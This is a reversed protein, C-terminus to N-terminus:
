PQCFTLAKSPLRCLPERMSELTDLVERLQQCGAPRRTSCTRKSERVLEAAHVHGRRVTAPVLLGEREVDRLVTGVRAVLADIRTVLNEVPPVDIPTERRRALVIEHVRGLRTGLELRTKQLEAATFSESEYRRLQEDIWAVESQLVSKDVVTFQLINSSLLTLLRDRAANLLRMVEQRQDVNLLKQFQREVQEEVQRDQEPTLPRIREQVERRLADTAAEDVGCEPFRGFGSALKEGPRYCEKYIIVPDAPEQALVIASGVLTATAVILAAGGCIGLCASSRPPFRM